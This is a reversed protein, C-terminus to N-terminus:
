KKVLNNIKEILDKSEFPKVLMEDSEINMARTMANLQESNVFGSVFIIPIDKLDEMNKFERYVHLGDRDPMKIDLIIVDPKEEKAKRIGEDGDNAVVTKFGKKDLMVQYIATFHKDDDIMLIKVM